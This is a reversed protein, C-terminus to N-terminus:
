TSHQRHLSADVAAAMRREDLAGGLFRNVRAAVAPASLLCDGYDVELVDFGPQHSLWEGTSKMEEEFIAAMREDSVGAGAHGARELMSRQSRIVERMDRRMMIVRYTCGPPLDRLLVYVIKVAKGEAQAVWSPDQRTRRVAEFELYGRPNDRDPARVGDTLAPIGGAELMQMM